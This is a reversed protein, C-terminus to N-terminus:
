HIEASLPSADKAPQAQPARAQAVETALDALAQSLALATSSGDESAAEREIRSEREITQGGERLDRLTWRAAVVIKGGEERECRAFAVQIQVDPRDTRYWPYHAIRGVGLKRELDIGLVREVARDFPESWRETASPVIRTGERRTVVETRLLYDPMTIPGLGFHVSSEPKSPDASTAAISGPMEDVSALVAFRAPDKEPALIGCGGVYLVAALAIAVCAFRKAIPASRIPM